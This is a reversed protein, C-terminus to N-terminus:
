DCANSQTAPDSLFIGLPSGRPARVDAAINLPIAPTFTRKRRVLM